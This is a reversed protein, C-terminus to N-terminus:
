HRAAEERDLLHGVREGRLAGAARGRLEGLVIGCRAGLARLGFGRARREALCRSSFRPLLANHASRPNVGRIGIPLPGRM